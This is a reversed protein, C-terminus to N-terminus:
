SIAELTFTDSCRVTLVVPVSISSGGSIAISDDMTGRVTVMVVYSGDSYRGFVANAARTTYPLHDNQMVDGYYWDLTPVILADESVNVKYVVTGSCIMSLSDLVLPINLNVSKSVTPVMGASKQASTKLRVLEKQIMKVEQDFYNDM